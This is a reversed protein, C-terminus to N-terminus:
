ASERAAASAHEYLDLWLGVAIELEDLNQSVAEVDYGRSVWTEQFRRLAHEVRQTALQHPDSTV